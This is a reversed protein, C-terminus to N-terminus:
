VRMRRVALATCGLFLPAVGAPVGVHTLLRGSSDGSIAVRPGDVLYTMPLLPHM